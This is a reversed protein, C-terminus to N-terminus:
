VAKRKQLMLRFTERGRPSILTQIGFQKGKKWEKIEFLGPVYQAYPKLKGKTDRYVYGNELLWNIFGNQGMKFEKATDRFNTLLNREVLEDFYEGKPKLVQNEIALKENKESLDAALRLAEAFTGPVKFGNNTLKEEMIYFRDIYSASFLIGKKGTLKHAILECGKKTIRYCPREEKKKDLYTSKSFYEVVQIKLTNDESLYGIYTKIDAMLNDHRKGIMEAVELSSLTPQENAVILQDTM